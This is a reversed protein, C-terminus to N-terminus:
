TVGGEGTPPEDYRALANLVDQGWPSQSEKSGIIGRAAEVVAEAREARVFNEMLKEVHADREAEAKQARAEAAETRKGLPVYHDLSGNLLKCADELQAVHAKCLDRKVCAEDREREARELATRKEHAEDYWKQTTERQRELAEQADVMGKRFFVADQTAAEDHRKLQELAATLSDLAAHAEDRTDPGFFARWEGAQPDYSGRLIAQRVREVLAEVSPQETMLGEM